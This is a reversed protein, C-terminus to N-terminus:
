RVSDAVCRSYRNNNVVLNNIAPVGQFRFLWPSHSNENLMRHIRFNESSNSRKRSLEQVLCSAGQIPWPFIKCNIPEQGTVGTSEFTWTPLFSGLMSFSSFVIRCRRSSSVKIYGGFVLLSFTKASKDSCCIISPRGAPSSKQIIYRVVLPFAEIKHRISIRKYRKRKTKKEPLYQLLIIARWFSYGRTTAWPWWRFVSFTDVRSIM